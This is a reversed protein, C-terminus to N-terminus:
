PASLRVRAFRTPASSILLHDEVLVERLYGSASESVLNAGPTGVAATFAGSTSRAIEEWLIGDSSVEVHYVLDTALTSRTFYIALRPGTSDIRPLAAPPIGSKPNADFGYELYTSLGDHDTDAGPSSVAPDALEAESFKAARFGELTTANNLAGVADLDFGASGDTPYPDYIPNGQTDLANG